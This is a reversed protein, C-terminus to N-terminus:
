KRVKIRDYEHHFKIFKFIIVELKMYIRKGQVM